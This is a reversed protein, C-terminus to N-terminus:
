VQAHGGDVPIEAGVVFASDSSGLFVAAKAIDDPDAFSATLMQAAFMAKIAPIQDEPVGNNLMMPTDTPGVTLVNAKTRRQQLEVSWCRM